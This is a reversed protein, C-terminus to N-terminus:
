IEVDYGWLRDRHDAIDRAELLTLLAYALSINVIRSSTPRYHEYTMGSMWCDMSTVLIQTLALIM